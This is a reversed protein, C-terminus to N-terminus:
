ECVKIWVFLIIKIITYLSWILVLMTKSFIEPKSIPCGKAIIIVFLM